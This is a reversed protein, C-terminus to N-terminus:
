DLQLRVGAWGAISTGPSLFSEVNGVPNSFANRNVLGFSNYDEDFVNNAMAFIEINETLKYSSNLNVVTYGPIRPLQNNDDGPLYQSSAYFLDMGIRWGRLVEYDVGFKILKHPISTIRDGPNVNVSGIANQLTIASQYTADM